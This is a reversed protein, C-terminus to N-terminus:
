RSCGRQPRPHSQAQSGHHVTAKHEQDFVFDARSFTGDPRASKDWVPIHPTIQRDVLWKLLGVAGYATDGALRRPQLGFRHAVREIM